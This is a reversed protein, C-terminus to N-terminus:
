NVIEQFTTLIAIKKLILHSIGHSKSYVVNISHDSQDMMKFHNILAAKKFM